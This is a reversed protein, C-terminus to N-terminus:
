KREVFPLFRGSRCFPVFCDDSTANWRHETRRRPTVHGRDHQDPATADLRWVRWLYVSSGGHGRESGRECGVLSPWGPSGCVEVYTMCEVGCGDTARGCVMGVYVHMCWGCVGGERQGVDLEGRLGRPM